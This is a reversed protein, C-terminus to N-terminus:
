AERGGDIRGPNIKRKEVPALILNDRWEKRSRVYIYHSTACILIHFLYLSGHRRYGGFSNTFTAEPRRKHEVKCTQRAEGHIEVFGYM